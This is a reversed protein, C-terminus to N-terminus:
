YGTINPTLDFDVSLSPDLTIYGGADKTLALNDANKIEAIPNVLNVLYPFATNPFPPAFEFIHPATILTPGGGGGFLSSIANLGSIITSEQIALIHGGTWINPDILKTDPVPATHVNKLPEGLVEMGTELYTGSADAGGFILTYKEDPLIDPFTIKQSFFGNIDVKPSLTVTVFNSSNSDGGQTETVAPKVIQYKIWSPKNSLLVLSHDDVAVAATYIKTDDWDQLKILSREVITNEAIQLLTKFKPSLRLLDTFQLLTINTFGFSVNTKINSVFIKLNNRVRKINQAETFIDKIATIGQTNTIFDSITYSTPNEAILKLQSPAAAGKSAVYKKLGDILNQPISTDNALKTMETPWDNVLTELDDQFNPTSTSQKELLYSKIETSEIIYDVVKKLDIRAKKINTAETFLNALVPIGTVSNIFDSITYLTPNAVMAKLQNLIIAPIVTAKGQSIRFDEIAIYDKLTSILNQPISTDNALKTMGAAQSNVFDTLDNKINQPISMDQEAIYSKLENLVLPTRIPPLSRVAETNGNTDVSRWALLTPPGKPETSTVVAFPHKEYPVTSNVTASPTSGDLTYGTKGAESSSLAIRWPSVITATTIPPIIDVIETDLTSGAKTDSSTIKKIGEKTLRNVIADGIAVVYSEWTENNTLWDMDKFLSKGTADALIKGPTRTEWKTCELGVREGSTLLEKFEDESLELGNDTIPEAPNETTAATVENSNYYSVSRCVKDGLFGSGAAAEAKSSDQKSAVRTMQENLATMYVMYPNNASESVKIWASWGGSTFNKMFEDYNAGIKDLSCIAKEGFTPAKSLTARIDIAWSPQCLGAMAVPGIVQSDQLALAITDKGVDTLFNGLDNVFRPDGKGGQIWKIIENVMTDLLQKRLKAAAVRLAAYGVQVAVNAYGGGGDTGVATSPFSTSVFIILLVVISIKKFKYHTTSNLYKIM